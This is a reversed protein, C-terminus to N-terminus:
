ASAAVLQAVLANIRTVPLQYSGSRLLYLYSVWLTIPELLPKAIGLTSKATVPQDKQPTVLCKEGRAAVQM